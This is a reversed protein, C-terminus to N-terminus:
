RSYKNKVDDEFAQQRPDSETTICASEPEFANGSHRLLPYKEDDPISTKEGDEFAQQRPDSKTTICTSEPEFANGSHRLLPNNRTMQFAQKKMM